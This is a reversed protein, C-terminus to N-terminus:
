TEKYRRSIDGVSSEAVKSLKAIESHSYTSNQFFIELVKKRNNLQKSMKSQYVSLILLVGIYNFIHICFTM